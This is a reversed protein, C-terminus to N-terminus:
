EWGYPTRVLGLDRMAETRVRAARARKANKAAKEALLAKGAETVKAVEGYEDLTVIGAEAAALAEASEIWSGREFRSLFEVKAAKTKM